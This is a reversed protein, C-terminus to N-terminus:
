ERTWYGFGVLYATRALTDATADADRYLRGVVYVAGAVNATGLPTIDVQSCGVTRSTNSLTSASLPVAASVAVYEIGWKVAGTATGTGTTAFVVEPRITTSGSPVRFSFYAGQEHSQDFALAKIGGVLTSYSTLVTSSSVESFAVAVTATTPTVGVTATPFGARLPVETWVDAAAVTGVGGIGMGGIGVWVSAMAGALIM